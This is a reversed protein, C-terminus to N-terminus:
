GISKEYASQFAKWDADTWTGFAANYVEELNKKARNQREQRDQKFRADEDEISKAQKEGVHMNKKAEEADRKAIVAVAEFYSRL